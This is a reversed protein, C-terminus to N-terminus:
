NFYNQCMKSFIVSEYIGLLVQHLLSKAGDSASFWQMLFTDLQEIESESGNRAVFDVRDYDLLEMINEQQKCLDLGKARSYDATSRQTVENRLM